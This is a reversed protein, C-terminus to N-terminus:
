KAVVHRLSIPSQHKCDSRCDSRGGGEGEKGPRIVGDGGGVWGQSRNEIHYMGKAMTGDLVSSVTSGKGQGRAGRGEGKGNKWPRPFGVRPHHEGPRLRGNSGVREHALHEGHERVLRGRAPARVSLVHDPERAVLVEVARAGAETDATVTRATCTGNNAEAAM